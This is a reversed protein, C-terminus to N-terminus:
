SPLYLCAKSCYLFITDQSSYSDLKQLSSSVCFACARRNAEWRLRAMHWRFSCAKEAATSLQLM